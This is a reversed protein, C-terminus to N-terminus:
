RSMQLMFKRWADREPNPRTNEGRTKSVHCPICLVQVNAPDFMAGGFQLPLIHDCQNGWRGCSRCKFGDRDLITLRFRDWATGRGGHRPM